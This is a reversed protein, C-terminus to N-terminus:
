APITQNLQYLIETAASLDLRGGRWNGALTDAGIELGRVHSDHALTDSRGDPLDWTHPLPTGDARTVTVTADDSMTLQHGGDHLLRHHAACLTVLNDLRTPGSDRTWSRIHHGHTRRTRTCGPWRCGGDRVALARRLAPTITRTTRGLDLPTGDPRHSMARAGVDCLLRHVTSAALTPGGEIHCRDGSTADHLTDADVHVIVRYADPDGAAARRGALWADALLALADARLAPWRRDPEAPGGGLTEDPRDGLAAPDRPAPWAPVPIRATANRPTAGEPREGVEPHDTLNPAEASVDPQGGAAEPHDATDPAEASVDPQGDAADPRGTAPAEASVDPQRDAAEPRETAPAEAAPAEASVDRRESGAEGGVAIARDAELLDDLAAELARVVVAGAEAPLRAHLVLSGDDDYYWHLSRNAHAAAAAQTEDIRRLRRMTRTLTEIQGATAHTAWMALTSDDAPSAIRTLARVKSYSLRGEAFAARIAPLEPLARAVRVRERAAVPGLGTKWSLWHACSIIGDGGWGERRDFEGILEVLRAEGAALHGALTLLEAEVEPLPRRGSAEDLTGTAPMQMLM